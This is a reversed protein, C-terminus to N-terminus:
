IMFAEEYEDSSYECEAAIGCVGIDNYKSTIELLRKQEDDM